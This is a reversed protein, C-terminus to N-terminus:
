ATTAPSTSSLGLFKELSEYLRPPWRTAQRVYRMDTWNLELDKAHDFADEAAAEQGSVWLAAALAAHAEAYNPYKRAISRMLRISSKDDGNQYTLEAQRLRYGAIGPALDAAKQYCQQATAYDELRMVVNGKNFWATFEKPDREIADNCDQM